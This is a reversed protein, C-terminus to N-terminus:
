VLEELLENERLYEFYEDMVSPWAAMEDYDTFKEPDKIIIDKFFLYFMSWSDKSFSRKYENRVFEFWQEIRSEVTARKDPQLSGDKVATNVVLPLLLTWYDIATQYDLLKQNEVEMLFDFTFDYLKKFTVPEKKGYGLNSNEEYFNEENYLLSEHYQALFKKMGDISNIGYQQWQKLFQSKSFVGMRPSHLFFALTLSQPDEPEIELDELYQMTGNIDIQSENDEDRYNEFIAVLAKDFVPASSKKSSPSNFYADVARQLNYNNSDLFKSATASSAGTIDVFQQKVSNKKFM